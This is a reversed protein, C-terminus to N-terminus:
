ADPEVGSEASAEASLCAPIGTRYSAYRLSVGLLRVVARGDVRRNNRLTHSVSGEAAPPPMPLGTLESIFRCIELSTCPQEDAAPWTGSHNSLLAAGALAALDDVHIRSIFRSGDGPLRFTGRRMSAHVGRHPGYIAAPRLIMSSCPGQQVAREADVRLTERPSRPAPLSLENVCEQAGYVGTTSLYVVRAPKSGLADLLRPTPDTWCGASEELLPISLLVRIGEPVAAGTAALSAPDDLDLRLCRVDQLALREPHRSTAWVLHGAQALSSAVRRGTFGCGLILIDMRGEETEDPLVLGAATAAARGSPKVWEPAPVSKVLRESRLGFSWQM